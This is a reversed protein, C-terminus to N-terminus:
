TPLTLHTYSVPCAIVWRRWRENRFRGTPFLYGILMLCLYLLVWWGASLQALVAMATSDTGEPPTGFGTGVLTSHACLLWGIRNTDDRRLVLFGVVGPIVIVLLAPLFLWSGRAEPDVAVLALMTLGVLPLLAALVLRGRRSPPRAVASSM